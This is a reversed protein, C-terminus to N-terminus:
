RRAQQLGSRRARIRWRDILTTQRGNESMQLPQRAMLLPRFEVHQGITRV